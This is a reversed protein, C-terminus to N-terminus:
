GTRSSIRPRASVPRPVSGNKTDNPHSGSKDSLLRSARRFTLASPLTQQLLLAAPDLGLALPRATLFLGAGLALALRLV